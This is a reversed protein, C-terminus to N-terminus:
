LVLYYFVLLQKAVLEKVYVMSNYISNIKYKKIRVLRM